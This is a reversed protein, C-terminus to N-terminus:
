IPLTLMLRTGSPENKNFTLTAGIAEARFKITNMGQGTSTLTTADFGIGDDAIQIVVTKGEYLSQATFSVTRAKAHKLV